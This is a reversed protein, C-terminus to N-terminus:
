GAACESVEPDATDFNALSTFRSRSSIHFRLAGAQCGQPNSRHLIELGQLSECDGRMATDGWYQSLHYDENLINPIPNWIRSVLPNGM